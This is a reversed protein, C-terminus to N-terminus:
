ARRSVVKPSTVRKPYDVPQYKLAARAERREKRSGEFHVYRGKDPVREATWGTDSRLAKIDIKRARLMKTSYWRDEAKSFFRWRGSKGDGRGVGVGLYSWNCAQYVVGVENATRDAYAYFAVWGFDKHALACARSILFSAAHKHAWHVCAGRLLCVTRERWEPGCLLSSDSGPGPGFVAV